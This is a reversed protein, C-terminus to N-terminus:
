GVIGSCGLGCFSCGEPAIDSSSLEEEMKAVLEAAELLLTDNVKMIHLKITKGVRNHIKPNKWIHLDTILHGFMLREVDNVSLPSM